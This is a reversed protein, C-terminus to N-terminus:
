HQLVYLQRLLDTGTSTCWCGAVLLLEAAEEEEEEQRECAVRDPGRPLHIIDDEGVGAQLRLTQDDPWVDRTDKHLPCRQLVHVTTQDEQGCLCIPSPALKLKRQMHSNLRNHGTRLRVLVVQQERSLLRYDDGQARPM